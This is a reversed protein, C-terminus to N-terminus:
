HANSIIESTVTSAYAIDQFINELGKSKTTTKIEETKRKNLWENAKLHILQWDLGYFNAIKQQEDPNTASTIAICALDLLIVQVDAMIGVMSETDGIKEKIENRIGTKIEQPLLEVRIDSNNINKFGAFELFQLPSQTAYLDGIYEEKYYVKSM